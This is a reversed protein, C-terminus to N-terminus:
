LSRIKRRFGVFSILGIGLLALSAPEPVQTTGGGNNIKTIHSVTMPSNSLNIKFGNANSLLANTTDFVGISLNGENQFLARGTSNKLIYFEPNGPLM